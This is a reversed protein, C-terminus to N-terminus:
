AGKSPASSEEAGRSGPPLAAGMVWGAVNRQASCVPRRGRTADRSQWCPQVMVVRRQCAAVTAVQVREGWLAMNKEGIAVVDPGDVRSTRLVIPESGAGKLQVVEVKSEREENHKRAVLTLAFTDRGTAGCDREGGEPPEMRLAMAVEGSADWRVVANDGQCLVQPEIEFRSIQPGACGVVCFVGASLFATCVKISKLRFKSDQNLIAGVGPPECVCLELGTKLGPSSRPARCHALETEGLV